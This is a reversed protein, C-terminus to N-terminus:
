VRAGIGCVRSARSCGARTRTCRTRSSPRSRVSSWWGDGMCMDRDQRLGDLLELIKAQVTVDLATTPEDAILLSPECALAMAIMVRQRMGGSYEHPYDRLRARADRIGVREMASVASEVARKGRLGQHLEIAELLQDGVTYVPNLSTMPEQFVMAIEGGRIRRLAKMPARLLDVSEGGPRTFRISGREYRASPEPLLRLVSMASVSKGCGSEGVVAVTQGRAVSFRLGDVAMTRRSSAGGRSQFSVALDDITLLASM